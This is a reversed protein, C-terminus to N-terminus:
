SNVAKLYDEGAKALDRLVIRANAGVANWDPTDATTVAYFEERLALRDWLGIGINPEILVVRWDKVTGTVREAGHQLIFQAGTREGVANFTPELDVLTGDGEFIPQVLFDLMMYRPCAYSVGTADEGIERGTEKVYQEGALEVYGALANMCKEGAEVLRRWLLDRFETRIFEPKLLDLTGGRGVNTILQRSNLTIPHSVHWHGSGPADTSFILRHSGYINTRPRRTRNVVADWEQVQRDVFSQLFEETAWHEPSAIIVEQIAVNQLLSLNYTFAVAEALAQEDFQAGAARLTFARQGRGGSEAAGKVMIRSFRAAFARLGPFHCPGELGHSDASPDRAPLSHGCEDHAPLAMGCEIARRAADEGLQATYAALWDIEGPLEVRTGPYFIAPYKAKDYTTWTHFLSQCSYPLGMEELRGISM